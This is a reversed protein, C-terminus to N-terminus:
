KSDIPQQLFEYFAARSKLIIKECGDRGCFARMSIRYTKGDGAPVKTVEYAPDFTQLPGETTILTDTVNRFKWKSHDQLWLTVRSWKVECEVGATCLIPEAAKRAIEAAKERQKARNEDTCAHAEGSGSAVFDLYIGRLLVTNAGLAAARKKLTARISPEGMNGWGSKAKVEGLPSCFEVEDADYTLLVEDPTVSRKQNAAALLGSCPM